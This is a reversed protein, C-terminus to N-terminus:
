RSETSQGGKQFEQRPKWSVLMELNDMVDHDAGGWDGSFSPVQLETRVWKRKKMTM